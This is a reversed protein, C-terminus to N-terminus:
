QITGLNSTVGFLLAFDPADDNLGLQFGADFVLSDSVAYSGGATLFTADPQEPLLTSAVEGFVSFQEDLARAAALALGHQVDIGEDFQEGLLGLEYYATVVAFEYTHTAIAAAFLDFEGTGLGERESATPLKAVLQFAASTPERDSEWFRHRTGITVDGFGEGDQGAAGLHQFPSFGVFVETREDWGYKVSTPTDTFDGPDVAVGTEVEVTGAAATATDSSFSPRQSTVAQRYHPDLKCGSLLVLGAGLLAGVVARSRTSTM